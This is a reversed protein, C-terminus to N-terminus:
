QILVVIIIYQSLPRIEVLGTEGAEAGHRLERRYQALRRPKRHRRPDETLARDAHVNDVEPAKIELNIDM